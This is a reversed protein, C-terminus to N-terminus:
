KELKKLSLYLIASSFLIILFIIWKDAFLWKINSIGLFFGLILALATLGFAFGYNNKLNNSLATLTIPMTINFLFIGAIGLFPNSIGTLLFISSLALSCVGVKIWGFKDALMGGFFKGSFVAFVSIVLLIPISKWSFSILLGVLARILIVLLLLFLILTLSNIKTKKNKTYNLKPSQIFFVLVSLLLILIVFPIVSFYDSTGYIGGLFLGIAGPAVYIGPATAKKPTLNLSIIGGGIHFLSNGIGLSIVTILPFFFITVASFLLLFFGILISIKPKQIKDTLYGFIPQTAFALINYLIVLFIFNFNSLSHLKFMAFVFAISTADVLGHAFSYVSLNKILFHSNKM